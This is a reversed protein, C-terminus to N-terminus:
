EPECSTLRECGHKLLQLVLREREENEQLYSVITPVVFIFPFLLLSLASRDDHDHNAKFYFLREERERRSFFSFRFVFDSM